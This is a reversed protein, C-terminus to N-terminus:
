LVVFLLASTFVMIMTGILSTTVINSSSSGPCDITYGCTPKFNYCNEIVSCSMCEFLCTGPAITEVKPCQKDHVCQALGQQATKCASNYTQIQQCVGKDGDCECTYSSNGVCGNIKCNVSSPILALKMCYETSSCYLGQAIDCDYDQLCRQGEQRSFIPQCTLEKPNTDYMCSLTPKCDQDSTCVDNLNGMPACTGRFCTESAKCNGYSNNDNVCLPYTPNVCKSSVCSLGKTCQYSEKCVEDYCPQGDAIEQECVGSVDNCFTGSVCKDGNSCKSGKEACSVCQGVAGSALTVVGFLVIIVVFLNRNM